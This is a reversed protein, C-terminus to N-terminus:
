NVRGLSYKQKRSGESAKWDDLEEGQVNEEANKYPVCSLNNVFSIKEVGPICGIRIFLFYLPAEPYEIDVDIAGFPGTVNKIM